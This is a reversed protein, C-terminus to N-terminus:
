SLWINKSYNFHKMPRLYVGTSGFVKEIKQEIFENMIPINVFTLEFGHAKLLKKLSWFTQLSCHYKKYETFSRNKIIEFPMNTLKNPTQFLYFGDKKLIRRVESLHRKVDSIHELVDFSLIVDFTSNSFPMSDGSAIIKIADPYRVKGDKILSESIDFGIVNFGRQTLYNTLRGAGCGIELIRIGEKLLETRELFQINADFNGRDIKGNNIDATYDYNPV